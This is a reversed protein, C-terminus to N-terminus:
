FWILEFLGPYGDPIMDAVGRYFTDYHVCEQTTDWLKDVVKHKGKNKHIYECLQCNRYTEHEQKSAVHYDKKWRFYKSYEEDNSDVFTLYEALKAPSTFNRVDIYSSPPFLTPYDGYGMVIPVVDYDFVKWVKETVYNRCFSNEFALYFKYRSIIKLCDTNQHHGPCRMGLHGYVDVAIHKQLERVYAERYNHSRGNSVVWSILGTKKAARNTSANFKANYRKEFHGYDKVIDASPRYTYTANFVGRYPTPDADMLPPEMSGMIWIQHPSRYQPLAAMDRMHFLVADSANYVAKDYSASCKYRCTLFPSDTIGIFWDQVGFFPTWYLIHVTANSSGDHTSNAPQETIAHSTTLAYEMSYIAMNDQIYSMLTIFLIGSLVCLYFCERRM